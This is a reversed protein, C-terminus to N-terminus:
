KKHGNSYRILFSGSAVFCAFIMEDSTFHYLVENRINNGVRLYRFYTKLYVKLIPHRDHPCRELLIDLLTCYVGYWGIQLVVPYYGRVWVINLICLLSAPFQAFSSLLRRWHYLM